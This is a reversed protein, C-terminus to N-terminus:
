AGGGRVGRVGWMRRGGEVSPRGRVVEFPGPVLDTVHVGRCAGGDGKGEGNGVVGAVVVGVVGVALCDFCGEEEVQGERDLLVRRAYSARDNGGNGGRGCGNRAVFRARAAGRACTPYDIGRLMVTGKERGDWIALEGRATEGAHLARPLRVAVLTHHECARAGRRCAAVEAETCLDGTTAIVAVALRRPLHGQAATVTEVRKAAKSAVPVSGPRGALWFLLLLVAVAVALLSAYAAAATEADTGGPPRAVM